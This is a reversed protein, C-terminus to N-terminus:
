VATVLNKLYNALDMSPDEENKAHTILDKNESILKKGFARIMSYAKEADSEYLKNPINSIYRRLEGHVQRIYPMDYIGLEIEFPECLENLLSEKSKEIERLCM